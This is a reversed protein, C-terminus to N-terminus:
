KNYLIITIITKSNNLPVSSIIIFDYNNFLVDNLDEDCSDFFNWISSKVNGNDGM